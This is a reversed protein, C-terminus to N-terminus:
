NNIIIKFKKVLPIDHENVYKDRVKVAIEKTDYNGLRIPKGGRTICLTYNCENKYIGWFPSLNKRTFNQKQYDCDIVRSKINFKENIWIIVNLAKEKSDLPVENFLYYSCGEQKDTLAHVKKHLRRNIIIVSSPYAYDWHHLEECDYVKGNFAERMKCLRFHDNKPNKKYRYKRYKERGRIREAEIFSKDNSKETYHKSSDARACDKCKNLHGDLMQPHVYFESLEKEKGCKFCRKM